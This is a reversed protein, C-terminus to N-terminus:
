FHLIPFFAGFAMFLEVSETIKDVDDLNMQEKCWREFLRLGQEYANMTKARLQKSRCFVMYECILYDLRTNFM